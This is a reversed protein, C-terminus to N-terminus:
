DHKMEMIGESSVILDNFMTGGGHTINSGDKDLTYYQEEDRADTLHPSGCCGCGEVAVGTAETLKQLGIMFEKAAESDTDIRM